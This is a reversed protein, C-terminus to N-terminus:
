LKKPKFVKYLTADILGLTTFTGGIIACLSTMYDYWKRSEKQVVVSMPSMDYSFRAEPVNVEDYFVIQSQELMQYVTLSNVDDYVGPGAGSSSGMNLHTSVVKIYHHYAQHFKDTAYVKADMPNFQKHEEPVQKLVRKVKRMFPTNQQHPLLNTIPDGFSLHNVRHTLNTMAANLNHNVSKAEIHFNGPVRNVMLNGSVQCGPHDPRSSGARPVTRAKNQDKNAANKTEWDKYKQEMELKRKAYGTLAAVTRDMKYDPLVAQGEKYWRLTPFAMVREDKCLQAHIVCNVKGVGIPMGVKHVEEAFKEWTPHLRQCWICWPAYMDIFAMENNDLFGKFNDPTLEVAQEGDEHLEELTEEHEEHKVERQERNRGSFIRRQGDEDLQWKEINKTVNQRNTGLTDWVDVSVYDCHLDMLTMNFNLRIQPQDNEDLAISTGMNTRAFALTESFFLVGMVGMACLSMFAGLTTAETLDKPVRRYFDVSAMASRRGGGSYINNPASM